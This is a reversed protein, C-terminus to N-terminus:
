MMPHLKKREAKGGSLYNNKKNAGKKEKRQNYVCRKHTGLFPRPDGDPYIVPNKESKRKLLSM